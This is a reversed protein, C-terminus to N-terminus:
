SLSKPPLRPCCVHLLTVGDPLVDFPTSFGTSFVGRMADVDGCLALDIIDADWSVIRPWFLDWHLSFNVSPGKWNKVLYVVLELRLPRYRHSAIALAIGYGHGPKLVDSYLGQCNHRQKVTIPGLWLLFRLLDKELYRLVSSRLSVQESCYGRPSQLSCNHDFPRIDRHGSLNPPHCCKEQTSSNRNTPRLGLRSTSWLDNM